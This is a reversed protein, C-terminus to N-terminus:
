DEEEEENCDDCLDGGGSPNENAESADCWWSCTDCLFVEQDLELCEDQTLEPEDEGLHLLGEELSM